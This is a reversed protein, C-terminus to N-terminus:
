SLRKQKEKKKGKKGKNSSLMKQSDKHSVGSYEHM